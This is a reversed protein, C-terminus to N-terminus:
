IAVLFLKLAASSGVVTHDKAAGMRSQLPEAGFSGSSCCYMSDAGM